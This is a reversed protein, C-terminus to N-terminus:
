PRASRSKTIRDVAAKTWAAPSRISGARMGDALQAMLESQRGAELRSLERVLQRQTDASLQKDVARSSTTRRKPEPPPEVPPELPSMATDGGRTVAKDGGEQRLPTVTGGDDTDGRDSAIGGPSLNDGPMQLLYVNSSRSGNDRSRAVIRLLAPQGDTDRGLRHVVRQVTRESACVKRSITPISPWCMGQDDAIDALALLVIKTSPELRQEWAWNM